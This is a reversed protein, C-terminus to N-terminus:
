LITISYLSLIENERIFNSEFNLGLRQLLKISNENEPVTIGIIKNHMKLNIIEDLYKKSAEFAYGKKEFQPLIAFGIDPFEQHERNLFTIIGIPRRTEEIEFVSYFYNKNDLIKQIYQEADENNRINRDGIFKLWPNSNVLSYIFNNDELRIPRINLRETKLEQYM